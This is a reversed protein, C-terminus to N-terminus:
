KVKRGNALWTDIASKRFFLRKGYKEYPCLRNFCWGYVTQRAPKDPLYNILEEITFLKDELPQPQQIQPLLRILEKSVLKPIIEGLYAEFNFEQM